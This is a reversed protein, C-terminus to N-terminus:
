REDGEGSFSGGDRADKKARGGLSGAMPIPVYTLFNPVEGWEGGGRDLGLRSM